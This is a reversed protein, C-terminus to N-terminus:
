DDEIVYICFKRFRTVGVYNLRNNILKNLSEEIYIGNDYESGQSMHTTIAYGFEFRENRIYPDNRLSERQKSNAVFYRYSCELGNFQHIGKQISIDDSGIDPIFDLLFRDESRNYTFKPDNVVKGLLGNTLNIGDETSINWNNKRCVVREGYLPLEGKFGYDARMVENFYDRTANRGCIIIKSKRLMYPKLQNPKIVYADRWLGLRPRMGDKVMQSIYVIGSDMAQRMIETLMHIKKPDNLYAPQGHVPPLQNIDGAVIVPINHKEITQRMSPPITSGEDVLMLDIDPLSEKEVYKVVMKPKHYVPDMIQKGNEDLAPVVIPSYLWSHATKANEMGHVRMNIAAAGTYALPAVRSRSIGLYDIITNILYTKGSGPPGSIEFPLRRDGKWWEMAADFVRRQNRNLSAYDSM